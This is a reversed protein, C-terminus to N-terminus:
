FIKSMKFNLLDFRKMEKTKKRDIVMKYMLDEIELKEKKIIDKIKYLANHVKYVFKMFEERDIVGDRKSDIRKFLYDIEEASFNYGDISFVKHLDLRTLNNDMRYPKKLLLQDYYENPKVSMKIIKANIANIAQNEFEESLNNTKTEYFHKRFEELTLSRETKTLYNFVAELIEESYNVNIEKSKLMSVFKKKSLSDSESPNPEFFYAEGGLTYIIDKLKIFIGITEDTTIESALIKCRQLNQHFEKLSFSFPNIELYTLLQNIKENPIVISFDRLINSFENSSVTQEMRTINKQKIKDFILKITKIENKIDDIEVKKEFVTKVKLKNEIYKFIINSFIVM